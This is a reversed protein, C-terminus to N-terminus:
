LNIIFLNRAQPTKANKTIYKKLSDVFDLRNKTDSAFKEQLDAFFDCLSKKMEREFLSDKRV